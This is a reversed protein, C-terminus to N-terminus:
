TWWLGRTGQSDEDLDKCGTQRDYMLKMGDKDWWNKDLPFTRKPGLGEMKLDEMVKCTM